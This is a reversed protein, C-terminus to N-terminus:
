SSPFKGLCLSKNFLESLPKAILLACMKLLKAPIKDPGSSKNIDLNNIIKLVESETARVKALPPVSHDPPDLTPLPKDHIDLRTQAAFHKNLITAKDIDDTYPIGDQGILPPISANSTRGIIGKLINHYTHPDKKTQLLKAVQTQIHSDKLRRNTETTLNRQHRWREWDYDTNRKKAINFLRDRKRIHSKLESSFWPKNNSKKSVIRVPISAKAATLLADTFNDVADDIDCNLLSDWDTDMLLRTLKDPDMHRYDWLQKTYNLPPSSEIKLTVFIPLHDIQSFCPLVGSTNVMSDNSVILLDRLNAVGNSATYRTPEYILQKLNLAFIEDHLSIEYPTIPSHNLFKQDLFTNGANLDGLIIINDPSYLQAMSLSENLKELFTSHEPATLNPPIYLSCIALTINKIKILCWIWELGDSELNPLRKAAIYNRVYIAVEGGNRYRHRTMPGHFDDLAFLSPHVQDDLKTETLCIIDVHNLSLLHSLEDLRCRSTISNINVHSITVNGTNHESSSRGPAPAPALTPTPAPSTASGVSALPRGPGSSSVPASM